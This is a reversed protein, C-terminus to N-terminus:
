LGSGTGTTFESPAKMRVLVGNIIAHRNTEDEPIGFGFVTKAGGDAVGAVKKYVTSWQDDENPTGNARPLKDGINGKYRCVLYDDTDLASVLSYGLYNRKPDLCIAVIATDSLEVVQGDELTVLTTNGSGSIPVPCDKMVQGDDRVIDFPVAASQLDTLTQYGGPTLVRSTAIM